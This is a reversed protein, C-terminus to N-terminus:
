EAPLGVLRPHATTRYIWRGDPMEMSWIREPDVGIELERVRSHLSDNAFIGSDTVLIHGGEIVDADGAFAVQLDPENDQWAIEATMADFDLDFRVARSRQDMPLIDPNGNGNDFLLLSGDPQWQPSHQHFFWRDGDALEFDGGDGLRWIVEDTSRDIQIIWDLHRMSLTITQAEDDYVLGNAHTWDAGTMGTLPDVIPDMFNERRRMPDLHDFSDWLWVVEGEPTFEVLVDGCVHTVGIDPYDIDRFSMSIAMFNGNPLEHVDHHLVGLGANGGGELTLDAAPIESVITGLEDRIWFTDNELHVITGDERLKIGVWVSPPGMLTTPQSLYWRTVGTPDVVMAGAFTDAPWPNYDSLRYLPAPDINTTELVFAGIFGPLATEAMFDTDGALPGLDGTPTVEWHLTHMMDPGPALGRVRYRHETETSEGHPLVLVGIDSAHTLVVDGAESLTVLVDVVMPQEPYTTIDVQVGILEGTSTDAVESSSSSETTTTTAPDTSTSPSTSTTPDTSSSEDTAPTGDDPCGTLVLAIAPLSGLLFKM